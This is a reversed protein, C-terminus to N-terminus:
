VCKELKEKKIQQAFHANAPDSNIVSHYMDKWNLKIVWNDPIKHSMATSAPFTKFNFHESAKNSKDMPYHQWKFGLILWM